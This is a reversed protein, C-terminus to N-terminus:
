NILPQPWDNRLKRSLRSAMRLDCFLLCFLVCFGGCYQLYTPEFHFLAAISWIMALGCVSESVMTLQVIQRADRGTSYFFTATPLVTLFIFLPVLKFGEESGFISGINWHERSLVTGAVLAFCYFSGILFSGMRRRDLLRRLRMAERELLHRKRFDKRAAHVDGLEALSKEQAAQEPLGEAIHEEVSEAHHTRIEMWIRDQASRVLDRTAILLWEYVNEPKPRAFFKM